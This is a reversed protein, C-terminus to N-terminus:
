KQEGGEIAMILSAKKLEEKAEDILRSKIFKVMDRVDEDSLHLTIEDGDYISGYNFRIVVECPPSSTFSDLIKGSFDSYYVANEECAPELIKKM